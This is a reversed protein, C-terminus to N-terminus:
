HRDSPGDDQDQEDPADDDQGDDEPHDYTDDATMDTEDDDSDDDDDDDAVAGRTGLEDLGTQRQDIIQGETDSIPGARKGALSWANVYPTPEHRQPRLMRGLRRVVAWALLVLSLGCFALAVVALRALGEQREPELTEKSARALLLSLTGTLVALLGLLVMAVGANVAQRKSREVEM